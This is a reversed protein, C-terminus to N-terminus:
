SHLSGKFGSLWRHYSGLLLISVQVPSANHLQLVSVAACSCFSPVDVEVRIVFAYACHSVRVEPRPVWSPAGAPYPRKKSAFRKGVVKDSTSKYHRRTCAGYAFGPDSTTTSAIFVSNRSAVRVAPLTTRNISAGALGPFRPFLALALSPVAYTRVSGCCGSM